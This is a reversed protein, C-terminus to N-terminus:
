TTVGDFSELNTYFGANSSCTKRGGMAVICKSTYKEDGLGGVGKSFSKVMSKYFPRLFM